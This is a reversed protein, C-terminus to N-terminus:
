RIEVQRSLRELMNVGDWVIGMDVASGIPVIRDVFKGSETMAQLIDVGGFGAYTLTQENGSLCKFAQALNPYRFEQFNGYRYRGLSSESQTTWVDTSWNCLAIPKKAQSANQMVDLYRDIRAVPDLFYKKKLLLNSASNWFIRKAQDSAKQSGIWYISSPSSCANHDVVFTDNFFSVMLNNIKEQHLALISEANIILGSVRNPFYMEVCRPRKPLSRFHSVTEDGGWVILADSKGVGAKLWQSDRSTKIFATSRCIQSFAGQGSIDRIFHILMKVQPWDKTPLRVVNSNGSLFGFLFSFAFNMPINAPAIHIATGWGYRSALDSNKGLILKINKDRCFYAFTILDPYAKAEKSALITKSLASLFKVRTPDGVTQRSPDVSHLLPQSQPTSIEDILQM